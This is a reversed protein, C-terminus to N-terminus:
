APHWDALWQIRSDVARGDPTQAPRFRFRREILGCTASDVAPYGSSQAVRCQDVRGDSRVRISVVVRAQAGALGSRRYDGATLDGAIRVPQSAIGSGNGAGSDGAGTGLGQGGRGAGSGAASGAGSAAESGPDISPQAPTPTPLPHPPSPPSPAKTAGRSTPAAAGAPKQDPSPPAPPPPRSVNFAVLGAVRKLPSIGNSLTLLGAILLANIAIAGVIGAARNKSNLQRFAM